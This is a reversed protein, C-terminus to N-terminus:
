RVLHVQFGIRFHFGGNGKHNEVKSYNYGALGDIAVNENLFYAGGLGILYNVATETEAVGMVKSRESEVKFGAHMFPKFEPEKLEFYYRAFPGVGLRTSKVVGTKSTALELESGAAFGKLFFYGGMPMFSFSSNNETTNISISGGVLWDGKYTQAYGVSLMLFAILTCLFHQKM